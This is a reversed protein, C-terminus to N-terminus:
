AGASKRALLSGLVAVLEAPEVPKPIHVQFGAKLARVRDEVRAYATLAIASVHGGNQAELARVQSILAYGDENPMGIDSILADPKWHKWVEMAEAVSSTTVVECGCQKLMASLFDRTDAEDDVILLRAGRLQAPLRTRFTRDTVLQSTRNRTAQQESARANDTTFRHLDRGKGEGESEARATGGHLEVLQRV